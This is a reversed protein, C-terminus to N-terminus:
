TETPLLQRVIDPGATSAFSLIGSAFADLDKPKTGFVQSVMTFLCNPKGARPELLLAIPKEWGAEPDPFELSVRACRFERGSVANKNLYNNAIWDSADLPLPSWEYESNHSGGEISISYELCFNIVKQTLVAVREPSACGVLIRGEQWKIEDHLGNVDPDPDQFVMGEPSIALTAGAGMFFDPSPLQIRTPSTIRTVVVLSARILTHNIM